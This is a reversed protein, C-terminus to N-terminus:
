AAPVAQTRRVRRRPTSLDAAVAAPQEAAAPATQREMHIVNGVKVAARPPLTVSFLPQTAAVRKRLNNMPRETFGFEAQVANWVIEPDIRFQLITAIARALGDTASDRVGQRGRPRLNSMRRMYDLTYYVKHNRYGQQGGDRDAAHTPLDPAFLRAFEVFSFQPHEAKIANFCGMVKPAIDKLSTRVVSFREALDSVPKQLATVQRKLSASLTDFSVRGNGNENRDEDMPAM